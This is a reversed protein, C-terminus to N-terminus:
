GAHSLAAGSRNRVPAIGHITMLGIHRVTEPPVLDSLVLRDLGCVAAAFPLLRMAEPHGGNDLLLERVQV